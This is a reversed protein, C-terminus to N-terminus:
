ICTCASSHSAKRWNLFWLSWARRHSYLQWANPISCIMSRLAFEKLWFSCIEDRVMEALTGSGHPGVILRLRDPTGDSDLADFGEFLLGRSVGGDAIAREALQTPLERRVCERALEDLCVYHYYFSNRNVGARAVVKAVSMKAYPTERLEAMFANRLRVQAAENPANKRPRAMFGRETFM